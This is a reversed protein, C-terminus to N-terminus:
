SSEEEPTLPQPRNTESQEAPLRAKGKEHYASWRCHPAQPVRGSSDSSQGLNEKENKNEEQTPVIKGDNSFENRLLNEFISPLAVRQASKGFSVTNM